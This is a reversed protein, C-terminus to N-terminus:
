GFQTLIGKGDLKGAKFQGEYLKGGLWMKMGKRRDINAVTHNYEVKYVIEYLYRSDPVM